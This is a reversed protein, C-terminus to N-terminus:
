LTHCAANYGQTQRHTHCLNSVYSTHSLHGDSLGVLAHEGLSVTEERFVKDKHRGYVLQGRLLLFQQTTPHM